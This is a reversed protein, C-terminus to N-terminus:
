PALFSGGLLTGALLLPGVMLILGALSALGVVDLVLSPGQPLLHQDRSQVKLADLAAVVAYGAACAGLVALAAGSIALGVGGAARLAPRLLATSPGAAVESAPAGAALPGWSPDRASDMMSKVVAPLRDLLQDEDLNRFRESARAVVKAERARFLALTLVYSSGVRGLSGAIVLEANLAGAIETMCAVEDCGMAARVQVVSLQAELEKVTVVDFQGHRAAEIAVLSTVQDGLGKRIPAKAELPMVLLSVRRAASAPEAAAVWSSLLVLSPLLVM